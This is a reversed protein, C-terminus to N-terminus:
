GLGRLREIDRRITRDAVAPRDALEPASLESRAQLLSLLKLLRSSPEAM